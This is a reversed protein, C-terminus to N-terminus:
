VGVSVTGSREPECETVVTNVSNQAGVALEHGCRPCTSLDIKLHNNGCIMCTQERDPYIDANRALSPTPGPTAGGGYIQPLEATMRRVRIFAAVFLLMTILGLLEPAYAVLNSPVVAYAVAWVGTAAVAALSTTALMPITHPRLTGTALTRVFFGIWWIVMIVIGVLLLFGGGIAEGLAMCDDTSCTQHTAQWVLLIGLVVPVLAVGIAVMMSRRRYAVGCAIMLVPLSSCVARLANAGAFSNSPLQVTQSTIALVILGFTTCLLPAANRQRGGFMWISAIAAIILVPYVIFVYM